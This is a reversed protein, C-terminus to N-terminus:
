IQTGAHDQPQPKDLLYGQGLSESRTSSRDTANPTEIGEAVVLV